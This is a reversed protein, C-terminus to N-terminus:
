EGFGGGVLRYYRYLQNGSGGNLIQLSKGCYAVDDRNNRAVLDGDFRGAFEKL